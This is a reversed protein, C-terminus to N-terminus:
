RHRRRSECARVESVTQMCWNTPIPQAPLKTTPNSPTHHSLPWSSISIAACHMAAPVRITGRTVLYTSGTMAVPQCMIRPPMGSIAKDRVVSCGSSEVLRECIVGPAISAQYIPAAPSPGKTDLKNHTTCREARRRQLTLSCCVTLSCM